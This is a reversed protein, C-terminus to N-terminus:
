SDCVRKGCVAFLRYRYCFEGIFKCPEIHMALLPANHEVPDKSIRVINYAEYYLTRVVTLEKLVDAFKRCITFVLVLVVIHERTMNIVADGGQHKITSGDVGIHINYTNDTVSLVM